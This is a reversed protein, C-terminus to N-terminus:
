NATTRQLILSALCMRPSIRGGTRARAEAHTVEPAQDAGNPYIFLNLVCRASRYQWLEAQRERRKLEPRGLLGEIRGAGGNMIQGLDIDPPPLPARPPPPAQPLATLAEPMANGSSSPAQAPGAPAAERGAGGCGALALALGLAVVSGLRRM